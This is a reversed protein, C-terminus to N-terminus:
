NPLLTVVTRSNGKGAARIRIQPANGRGALGRRREGALGVQRGTHVRGKFPLTRHDLCCSRSKKFSRYSASPGPETWSGACSWFLGHGAELRNLYILRNSALAPDLGALAGEERSVTPQSLWLITQRPLVPAAEWGTSM